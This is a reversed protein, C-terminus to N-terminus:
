GRNHGDVPQPQLGNAVDMYRDAQILEEDLAIIAPLDEISDGQTVAVGQKSNTLGFYQMSTMQLGPSSQRLIFLERLLFTSHTALVVQIGHNGLALIVQAAVRILAPNLNAEPEDWFLTSGPSLRGTALIRALAGLKRFGDAILCADFTGHPTELVFRGGEDTRISGNMARELPDLVARYWSQHEITKSLPATIALCADNWTEDLPLYRENYLAPLTRSFSLLEQPPLYLCRPSDSSEKLLVDFWASEVVHVEPNEALSLFFQATWGQSDRLLVSTNTNESPTSRLLRAVHGCQFVNLLKRNVMGNRDTSYELISKKDFSKITYALKLLHTKGTGNAGILVNVGPCFNLVTSDFVTFRKLQLEEIM